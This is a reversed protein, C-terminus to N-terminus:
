RVDVGDALCRGVGALASKTYAIRQDDDATAIGNETVVVPLGSLRAAKRVSAELAQLDPLALPLGVRIQPAVSKIADVAARHAGVLSDRMRAAVATDRVGM